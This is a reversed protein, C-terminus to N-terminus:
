KLRLSGSMKLFKATQNKFPSPNAGAWCPKRPPNCVRQLLATNLSAFNM